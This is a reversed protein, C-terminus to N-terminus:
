PSDRHSCSVVQQNQGRNASVCSMSQYVIARRAGIGSCYNFGFAEGSSTPIVTGSPTTGGKSTAFDFWGGYYLGFPGKLGYYRVDINSKKMIAM